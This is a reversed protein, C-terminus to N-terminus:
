HNAQLYDELGQQRYQYEESICAVRSGCQNRNKLWQLQEGRIYPSQDSLRMVIEYTNALKDDAKSLRANACIAKETANSAKSCNFSAAQTTPILMLGSAVILSLMIVKNM